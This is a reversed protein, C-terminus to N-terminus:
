TESQSKKKTDKHLAKKKAAQLRTKDRAYSFTRVRLYLQIMKELLCLRTENTISSTYGHVMTEFTSVMDIRQVLSESIKKGDIKTVHSGRTIKRFEEEM